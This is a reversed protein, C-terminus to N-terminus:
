RNQYRPSNYTIRNDDEQDRDQDQDIYRKDKDYCCDGPRFNPGYPPAYKEENNNDDLIVPGPGFVMMGPGYSGMMNGPGYGNGNPMM